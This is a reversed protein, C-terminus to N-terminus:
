TLNRDRLGSDGAGVRRVCRPPIGEVAGNATKARACLIANDLAADILIANEILVRVAVTCCCFARGSCGARELGHRCRGTLAPKMRGLTDCPVGVLLCAPASGAVARPSTDAYDPAVPLAKV